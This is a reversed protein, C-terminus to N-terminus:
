GEFTVAHRMRQLSDEPREPDHQLFVKDTQSVIHLSRSRALAGFLSEWEPLRFMWSSNLNEFWTALGANMAHDLLQFFSLARSNGVEVKAQMTASIGFKGYPESAPRAPRRVAMSFSYLLSAWRRRWCFMWSTDFMSAQTKASSGLPGRQPQTSFWFVFELYFAKFGSM